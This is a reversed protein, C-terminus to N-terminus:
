ENEIGAYDMIWKATRPEGAFFEKPRGATLAWRDIWSIGGAKIFTDESKYAEDKLAEEVDIFSYNKQKLMECLFGVNDANLRNAHILLIHSINRGFLENSKNEYWEVKLRMYDLYEQALKKVTQSDVSSFAKEYAAAYIWESNDVTVPAIKYGNKKLFSEIEHKVELSRGTQLFPHRFFKLEKGYNNVLPKSIIEGKLIDAEYDEVSVVNASKHSYTHNGLDFGATLWSRLLDVKTEDIKENNYLHNENVFGIVPANVKKLSEILKNMIQKQVDVPYKRAGAAIPLDDITIAIKGQAHSTFTTILITLLTFSFKKILCM